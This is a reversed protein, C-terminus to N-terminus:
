INRGLRTAHHPASASTVGINKKSKLNWMSQVVEPGIVTRATKRPVPFGTNSEPKLTSTTATSERDVVRSCAWGASLFRGVPIQIDFAAFAPGVVTVEAQRANWMCSESKTAWTLIGAICCSGPSRPLSASRFDPTRAFIRGRSSRRMDRYCTHNAANQVFARGASRRSM